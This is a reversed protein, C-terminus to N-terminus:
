DEPGIAFTTRLAADLEAALREAPVDLGLDDTGVLADLATPREFDFISRALSRDITRPVVGHHLLTTGTRHQAAGGVVRDGIALVRGRASLMCCGVSTAPAVEWRASLGHHGLWAVPGEGLRAYAGMLTPGIRPDGRPLVISWALDGASHLVGTGGTSRRVIAVGAARARELLPDEPRVAVGISLSADSLPVVRAWTRGAALHLAEERLVEGVPTAESRSPARSM